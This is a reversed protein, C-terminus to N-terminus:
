GDEEILEDEEVIGSAMSVGTSTFRNGQHSASATGEGDEGPFEVGDTGQMREALTEMEMHSWLLWVCTLLEGGTGLSKAHLYGRCRSASFCLMEVWVGQIVDWMEKEDGIAM